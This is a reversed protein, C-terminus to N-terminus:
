ALLKKVFQPLAFAAEHTEPNYYRTKDALQAWGDDRRDSIPDYTKSCFMFAWYSSPYIPMLCTYPKVIPFIDKLNLYMPKMADGNFLPSEAQAVLIGDDNLRNFLEQHFPKQFLAQAPGIPDSLDLIIVDFQTKSERIFEKGDRYVVEARPDELGRTLAPFHRRATAVVEADIECMTCAEVESHKMVETLAGCDGGGIILVRKPAPHVFLPVHTIMENYANHDNEAVMLSGYLALMKGFWPNELVDIRQIASERSELVREIKFTQGVVGKHLETYWLNWPDEVGEAKVTLGQKSTEDAM